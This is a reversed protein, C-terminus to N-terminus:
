FPLTCIEIRLLMKRTLFQPHIALLDKSYFFMPTYKSWDLMSQEYKSYELYQQYIFIM